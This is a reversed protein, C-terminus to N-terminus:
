NQHRTSLILRLFQMGFRCRFLDNEARTDATTWRRLAAVVFGKMFGVVRLHLICRAKAPSYHKFCFASMSALWLKFKREAKERSENGYSYGFLHTIKPAPLFVVKWGSKAARYCLDTDEFYAEFREDYLNLERALASRIFLGAGVIMDVEQPRSLNKPVTGLRPLQLFPLLRHLFFIEALEVVVSPFSGFSHQLTADPNLLCGGCVGVTPNNDMFKVFEYLVDNEFVTDNNLLLIYRGNAVPLARNNTKAYGTNVDSSIIKVDPFNDRVLALSHDTSCDDSLIIEFTASHTQRYISRLCNELIKEGNWNAIIISVDPIFVDPSNTM